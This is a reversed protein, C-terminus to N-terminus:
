NSDNELSKNDVNKETRLKVQFFHKVYLAKARMIIDEKKVQMTKGRSLADLAELKIESEAKLMLRDKYEKDKHVMGASRMYDYTLTWNWFAPLEKNSEVYAVLSNYLAENDHNFEITPLVKTRSMLTAADCRRNQYSRMVSAFFSLDMKNYHEHIVALDGSQNLQFALEVESKNIDKYLHFAMEIYGFTAEDPLEKIACIITANFIAKYLEERREGREMERFKKGQNAQAHFIRRDVIPLHSYDAKIIETGM